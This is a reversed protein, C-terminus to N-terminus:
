LKDFYKKAMNLTISLENIKINDFKYEVKGSTLKYSYMLMCCGKESSDYLRVDLLSNNGLTISLSTKYMECIWNQDEKSFTNDLESSSDVNIITCYNNNDEALDIDHKLKSLSESYAYRDVIVTSLDVYMGDTTRIIKHGKYREKFPRRIIELQRLAVEKNPYAAPCSKIGNFMFWRFFLKNYTTQKCTRWAFLRRRQVYYCSISSVVVHKIRYKVKIMNNANFM